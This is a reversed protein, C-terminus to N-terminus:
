GFLRVVSKDTDTLFYALLDAEIRPHLLQGALYFRLPPKGAFIIPLGCLLQAQDRGV